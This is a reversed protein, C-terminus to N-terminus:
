RAGAARLDAILRDLLREETVARGARRMSEDWPTRTPTGLLATGTGAAPLYDAATMRWPVAGPYRQLAAATM